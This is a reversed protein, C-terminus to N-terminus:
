QNLNNNDSIQNQLAWQMAWIALPRMYGCARFSGQMDWAEPTQFHYGFVNYTCHIIGKAVEFGEDLLGEQIMCAALSYNTGTWVECSQLCTNDPKGDPRMGNIAGLAGGKFSKFNKDYITKLSSVAKESEVISPLGCAKAYWQGALQDAMISDRHQNDSCDYNFYKGNWLKQHFSELGKKLVTEFSEVKSSDLLKAMEVAASLCCLWLGGTYASCGTASWVDYTQDPFGENDVVGDEDFDFKAAYEITQLVHPWVDQLFKRDKTVMYDRYVQLVFKSPLDKWKSVDQICYSNVKVWPDSGPTGMDHPVAGKVKRHAEHGSHLTQWRDPYEITTALAIDRQLSLELQPWLMSLAFSAYFHVDYTNYMLYEMGELYAFHGIDDQEGPTHTWITGGDVIYYLENFLAYKYFDPLKKDSIIPNQWSIIQSEWNPWEELAEQLLAQVANGETGFFKTYRRYYHKSSPFRAIPCDWALAFVIQKTSNGALKFKSAIASGVTKGKSSFQKNETVPNVFCSELKGSSQFTNWLQQCSNKDNTDFQVCYTTETEDDLSTAIGFSVPDTSVHHMKIGGMSSGVFATNYHGGQTDTGGGTGNQFSFMLSVEIDESSTNEATWVFVGVPYSSEKYNHPIVPSLQKCTLKLNADLTPEEYTTWARPFLAHYHSNNGNIHWGWTDVLNPNLGFHSKGSLKPKGPHLVSAKPSIEPRKVFVSFQNAEVNHLEVIGAPQVQWRLFDGRWGRGISGCGIGGLPVGMLPGAKPSNFPDMIPIRGSSKEKKCYKWMRWGLPAYKFSNLWSVSFSRHEPFEDSLRRSWCCTPIDNNNEM